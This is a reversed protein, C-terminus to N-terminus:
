AACVFDQSERYGLRRLADRIQERAIAGAVSAVLPHERWRVLENPDIVPAGHIVNGLRRPHVEVIAAPHKGRAALARRLSRGTGGYGWLVYRDSRELFSAALHSAKCDLFRDPGYADSRRSLCHANWRKALLRRPVVAVGHGADQLRLFLDYDEPWGV